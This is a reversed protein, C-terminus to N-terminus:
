EKRGYLLGKSPTRANHIGGNEAKCIVHYVKQDLM